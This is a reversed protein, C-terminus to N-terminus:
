PCTLMPFSCTITVETKKTLEIAEAGNRASLVQFNASRLIEVVVELVVPNDDVVLITELTIARTDPGIESRLQNLVRMRM